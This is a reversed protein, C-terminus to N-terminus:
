RRRAVVLRTLGGLQNGLGLALAELVFERYLGLEMSPVTQNLEALRALV